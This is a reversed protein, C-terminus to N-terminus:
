KCRKDVFASQNYAVAPSLFQRRSTSQLHIIDMNVNKTQDYTEEGKASSVYFCTQSVSIIRYNVLIVTALFSGCNSMKFLRWIFAM